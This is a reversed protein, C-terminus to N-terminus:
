RGTIEFALELAVQGADTEGAVPVVVHGSRFGARAGARASVTYEGPALDGFTFRGQEDSTTHAVSPPTGEGEARVVAGAVPKGSAADVILGGMRGAPDLRFDRVLDGVLDVSGTRAAYGNADAQLEYLAKGLRVAYRGEVDARAT